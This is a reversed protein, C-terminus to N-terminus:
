TGAVVVELTDNVPHAINTSTVSLRVRALKATAPDCAQFAADAGGDWTTM